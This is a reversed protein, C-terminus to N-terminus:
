LGSYKSRNNSARQATEWLLVRMKTAAFLYPRICTQFTTNIKSIFKRVIAWLLCTYKFDNNRSRRILEHISLTQTRFPIKTCLPRSTSRHHVTSLFYELSSGVTIMVLRRRWNVFSKKILKLFMIFNLTIRAASIFQPIPLPPVSGHFMGLSRFCKWRKVQPLLSPLLTTSMPRLVQFEIGSFNRGNFPRTLTTM